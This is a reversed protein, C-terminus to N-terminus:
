SSPLPGLAELCTVGVRPRPARAGTLAAVMTEMGGTPLAPLVMEIRMRREALRVNDAFTIFAILCLLVGSYALSLYIAAVCFSCLAALLEAPLIDARGPCAALEV